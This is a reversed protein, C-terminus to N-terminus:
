SLFVHGFEEVFQKSHERIFRIVRILEELRKDNKKTQKLIKQNVNKMLHEITGDCLSKIMLEVFKREEIDRPLFLKDIRRVIELVNRLIVIKSIDEDEAPKYHLNHIFNLFADQLKYSSDWFLKIVDNEKSKLQDSCRNKADIEPVGNPINGTFGFCAPIFNAALSLRPSAVATCENDDKYKDVISDLLKHFNNLNLPHHQHIEIYAAWKAFSINLEEIFRFDSHLSLIKTGIYNFKGNWFYQPIKSTELEHKLLIQLLACHAEIKEINKTKLTLMCFSQGNTEAVNEDNNIIVEPATKAKIKDLLENHKSLSM